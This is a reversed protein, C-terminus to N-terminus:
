PCEDFRWTGTAWRHRAKDKSRVLRVEVRTYVQRWWCTRPRYARLTVPFRYKATRDQYDLTGRGTTTDADWYAWRINRIESHAGHVFRRPEFKFRGDAPLYIHESLPWCADLDKAVADPIQDPCLGERDDIQYLTVADFAASNAQVAIGDGSCQDGVVLAWTPDTTSVNIAIDYGIDDEVLCRIANPDYSRVAARIAADQEPTPATAAQADSPLALLVAVAMAILTASHGPIRHFTREAVQTIVRVRGFLSTVYGLMDRLHPPSTWVANPVGTSVRLM